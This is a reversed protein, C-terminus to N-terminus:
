AERKTFYLIYIKILSLYWLFQNIYVCWLIKKSDCRRKREKNKVRRKDRGKNNYKGERNIDREVHRLRTSDRDRDRNTYIYDKIVYKGQEHQVRYKRETWFDVDFLSFLSM